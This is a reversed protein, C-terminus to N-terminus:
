CGRARDGTGAAGPRLCKLPCVPITPWGLYRNAIRRGRHVPRSPLGLGASQPASALGRENMPEDSPPELPDVLPNAAPHAISTRTAIRPPDGLDEHHTTLPTASTRTPARIATIIDFTTKLQEAWPWSKPLRLRRQRGGRTLRAPVHLLRGCPCLNPWFTLVMGPPHRSSAEPAERVTKARGRGGENVSGQNASIRRIPRGLRSALFPQLPFPEAGVSLSNSAPNSGDERTPCHHPHANLIQSTAGKGRTLILQTDPPTTSSCRMDVGERAFWLADGLV